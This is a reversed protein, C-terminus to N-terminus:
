ERPKFIQFRKKQLEQIDLRKKEDRKQEELFGELDCAIIEVEEQATRLAQDKNERPLYKNLAYGVGFSALALPLVVKYKLGKIRQYFNSNYM